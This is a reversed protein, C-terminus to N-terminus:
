RDEASVPMLSDLRVGVGYGNAHREVRVVVGDGVLPTTQRPLLITLRLVEGPVLRKGTTFYVGTTSANTTTGDGYSWAVSATISYRAAGRREVAAPVVM